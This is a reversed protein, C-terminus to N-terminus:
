HTKKLKYWDKRAQAKRMWDDLQRTQENKVEKTQEHDGQDSMRETHGVLNWKLM